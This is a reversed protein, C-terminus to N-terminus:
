ILKHFIIQERNNGSGKHMGVFRQDKLCNELYVSFVDWWQDESCYGGWEWEVCAKPLKRELMTMWNGM